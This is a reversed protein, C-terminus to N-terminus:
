MMKEKKRWSAANEKGNRMSECYVPIIGYKQRPNCSMRIFNGRSKPRKKRTKEVTRRVFLRRAAFPVRRAAFGAANRGSRRAEAPSFLYECNECIGVRPNSGFRRYAGYYESQRVPQCLAYGCKGVGWTSFETSLTSFGSEAQFGIEM